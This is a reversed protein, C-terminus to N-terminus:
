PSIVLLPSIGGQPDFEVRLELFRDLARSRGDWTIRANWGRAEVQERVLRLGSPPGYLMVLKGGPALHDALGDLLSRVLAHGPDVDLHEEFHGASADEWPPNCLIVDFREDAGVPAFAGVSDPTVLRTEFLGSWGGVQANYEANVVAVPHIDTAVVRAAGFHASLLGMVGTGTAVDLVRKGKVDLEGSQLVAVLYTYDRAMVAQHRLVALPEKLPPLDLHCLDSACNNEDWEGERGPEEQAGAPAAPLSGLSVFLVAIAIRPILGVEAAPGYWTM